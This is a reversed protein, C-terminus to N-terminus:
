IINCLEDPNEKKLRIIEDCLDPNLVITPGRHIDSKVSFHEDTYKGYPIYYDIDEIYKIEKLTKWPTKGDGLKYIRKNASTIACCLEHDRLIPNKTSWNKYSDRKICVIM